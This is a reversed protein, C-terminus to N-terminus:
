TGADYTGIFIPQTFVDYYYNEALLNGDVSVRLKM